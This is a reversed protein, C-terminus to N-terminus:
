FQDLFFHLNKHCTLMGSYSNAISSTDLERIYTARSENGGVAQLYEGIINVCIYTRNTLLVSVDGLSQKSAIM